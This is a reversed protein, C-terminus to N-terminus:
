LRRLYEYYEEASKDWNYRLSEEYSSMWLQKIRKEDNILDNIIKSMEEIGKYKVIYGNVGNKIIEPLSGKDYGIVPTGCSNAELTVMSWGEIFSTVIVIWASQYLEIKKEESVRGLYEGNVEAIKKKVLTELDGGGAMILKAKVRKAIQIADLPNKYKKLRGIWLITPEDSKKGPKYKEHDIGNYIVKIKSPNVGLKEILDRRTTNSVAIIRGYNKLGKELFSVTKALFPNLEYKVVEQHVHHVLGVTKPNVLYSYFPVAHAVSDIVIEHKKAEFFSYLHISLPNGRRIVRIGEIEDEERLGNVREALWTVNVGRKVLRKSVEYIVEEAGGAKPHKLDRHNIILLDM